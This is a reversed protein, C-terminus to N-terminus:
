AASFRVKADHIFLSRLKDWFNGGLVFLSTLFILDGSIALTMTWESSYNFFYGHLYPSLWGFLVPVIFMILGVSYRLKSVEDRPGYQNLLTSAYEKIIEYGDKGMVAVAAVMLLEAGVLVVGSLSATLTGSLGLTALLPIFVLPGVISLLLMASGLKFRWGSKTTSNKERPM